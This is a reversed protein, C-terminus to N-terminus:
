SIGLWRLVQVVAVASVYAVGTFAVLQLAPIRWGATEKRSVAVTSMCQLAFVFFVILGLCSAFTFLPTGDPLTAQRMALFLPAEVADGGSSVLLVLALAGVFVERAAFACILAVGVRWDLGMPAMVPEIWRGMTAAISQSLQESETLGPRPPFHTLIWLAIAIALITGGARQIYSKTRHYTSTLVVRFKPRRIAPLELLLTPKKSKDLKLFRGLIAAGVLGSVVSFLYLATLGLGGIWPRDAPTLFSLLLGYVPLRASCVMLPLIFITLMRERASPITRTSLMAPIACAFGSLIPVFGRGSLGVAALPRDVIMAGRSLYGSDELFGLALFLIVIQPIFVAVAGAGMIMGDTVLHALWADPLVAGVAGALLTIASDVSDMMPRAVWFISTFIATMITSFVVVGFVPHLFIRDLRETLPDSMCISLRKALDTRAEDAQLAKSQTRELARYISSIETDTPAEPRAPQVARPTQLSESIKRRLDEVGADTRGDVRVVPCKLDAEVAATDIRMHKRQELIDVMTLAIVVRHGAGILQMAPYLHRPLQTADAVVVVVDPMGHRSHGFLARVTTVEDLSQSTLSTIGPSDMVRAPRSGIRGRGIAYEVTSGPYNVTRYHSGTLANYLTTKGSNPLGALAM